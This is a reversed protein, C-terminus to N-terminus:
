DGMGPTRDTGHEEGPDLLYIVAEELRRDDTTKLALRVYIKDPGTRGPPDVVWGEIEFEPWKYWEGARHKEADPDNDEVTPWIQRVSTVALHITIDEPPDADDDLEAPRLSPDLFWPAVSLDVVRPRDRRSYALSAIFDEILFEDLEFDVPLVDASRRKTTTPSANM